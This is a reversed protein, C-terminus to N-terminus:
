TRVCRESLYPGDRDLVQWMMGVVSRFGCFQIATALPLAEGLAFDPGQEATHCAFLFAFRAGPLSARAIGLLTLKGGPFCSHVWQVQRIMELVVEPTARDGGTLKPCQGWKAPRHACSGFIRGRFNGEMWRQVPRLPPRLKISFTSDGPVQKFVM